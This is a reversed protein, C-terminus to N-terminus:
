NKIIFNIGISPQLNQHAGGGGSAGVIGVFTQVGNDETSATCILTGIDSNDASSGHAAFSPHTHSALEAVTLTHTEEGTQRNLTWATAAGGTGTGIGVPVRGRFDPLGFTTVGNGGYTTGLFAGLAPYTAILPQSGDCNLFGAPPGGLAYQIIMGLGLTGPVVWSPPTAVGTSTYVSGPVGYPVTVGNPVASAKLLGTTLDFSVTLFSLILQTLSRIAAAGGSVASNDAPQTPDFPTLPM